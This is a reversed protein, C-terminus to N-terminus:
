KQVGRKEFVDQLIPVIPAGNNVDTFANMVYYLDKADPNLKGRIKRIFGMVDSTNEWNKVSDLDAYTIMLSNFFSGLDQYRYTLPIYDNSEARFSKYEASAEEFLNFDVTIGKPDRLLVSLGRFGIVENGNPLIMKEKPQRIEIPDCAHQLAHLIISYFKIDRQQYIKDILNMDLSIRGSVAEEPFNVILNDEERTKYKLDKSEFEIKTKCGFEELQLSYAKDINELDRPYLQTLLDPSISYPKTKLMEVSASIDPNITGVQSPTPTAIKCGTFILLSATKGTIINRLSRHKREIKNTSIGKEM